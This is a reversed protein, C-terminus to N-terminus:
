RFFPKQLHTKATRIDPIRDGKIQQLLHSFCFQCEDSNELLYDYVCEIVEDTNSAPRYGRKNGTASQLRFFLISRREFSFDIYQRLSSFLDYNYIATAKISRYHLM